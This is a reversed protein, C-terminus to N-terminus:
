TALRPFGTLRRLGSILGYRRNDTPKSLTWVEIPQRLGEALISALLEDILGADLATRDRLLADDRIEALPLLQPMDM